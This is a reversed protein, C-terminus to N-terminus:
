DKKFLVFEVQLYQCFGEGRSIYGLFYVAM